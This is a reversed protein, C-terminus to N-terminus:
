LLIRHQMCYYARCPTVEAVDDCARLLFYLQLLQVREILALILALLFLTVIKM